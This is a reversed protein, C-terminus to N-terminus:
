ERAPLLITAKGGVLRDGQASELYVDCEVQNEGNLQNKDTVVGVLRIAQPHAVPQRFVVDLKKVRGGDAWGDLFRAMLSMNMIGPAIAGSLGEKRAAEDDTFRGMPPGSSWVQCFNLVAQRTLEQKVPGMEEGVEVQEYYRSM